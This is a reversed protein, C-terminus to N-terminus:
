PQQGFHWHAQMRLTRPSAPILAAPISALGLQGNTNYREGVVAVGANPMPLNYFNNTNLLNEVSLQLDFQKTLPKRFTANYIAFPPQNYTNNKGEIDVGLSAFTGDRATYTLEGYGKLYPICVSGGPTALGCQQQGNAPLLTPGPVSSSPNKPFYSDPVGDVISRNLALSGYYGLGRVPQYTYRFMAMQAHLRAVNIPETSFTFQSGAPLQTALTEFVDHITSDQYDFSFVAGNHMRTDVGVDYATSVEPNLLVNKLNITGLPATGSAPTFFSTGSVQSAFPFTESTGFSARYSLGNRPQFTLAIHPDFRSISRAAAPQIPIANTVPNPTAGPVPQWGNLRWTTDYLGVKANVNRAINFDGTATISSFRAITDPVAVNGPTNYYALTDDSHYDYTFNILGTGVPQLLSFTTGHLRDFELVSFASQLVQSGGATFYSPYQAEGSGDVIRAINGAYPRLLVTTKGLTTRLQSTFIPQNNFVNSGLYMTYADITKGTYQGFNPNTCHGNTLCPVITTLGLYQGYSMGQPLFGGQSGVFGAEFSTAQSFDWKAKVIEGKSFLSGSSDGCYQIIGTAGPMNDKAPSQPTVICHYGQFFPGNSSGRSLVFVYSLKGFAGTTKASSYQANYSDTGTVFDYTPTSTFGPTVINATGGIALNAFPTTNGPGTQTEIGGVMASNFYQSFWVGYRGASLPHGDLLVETEYPQAGGLSISTNPQSSIKQVVAGPIRQVITNIQPNALNQIEIAPVYNSAAAGTNISSGRGVHVAAITRLSSLDAQQLVVSIPLTEGPFIAVDDLDAPLFGGKEVRVKYNGLPLTAKFAGAADSTFTQHVAGDATISAGAIPAGSSTKVTGTITGNTEIAQAALPMAVLVATLLLAFRSFM